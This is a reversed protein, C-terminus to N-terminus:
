ATRGPLMRSRRVLFVREVHNGPDQGSASPLPRSVSASCGRRRAVGAVLRAAHLDMATYSLLDVMCLLIKCEEILCPGHHRLRVVVKQLRLAM